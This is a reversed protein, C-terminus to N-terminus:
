KKEALAQRYKEADWDLLEAEADAGIPVPTWDKPLRLLIDSLCRLMARQSATATKRMRIGVGELLVAPPAGEHDSTPLAPGLFVVHDPYYSGAKAIANARKDRAIWSESTWEWGDLAEADPATQDPPKTPMLLRAEVEDILDATEAVTKGCVILGHNQLVFVRTGPQVCALIKRTLHLGPKAYPVFAPKLGKLKQAAAARGEPSIAHVLTAISHTHAIVPWYLAAHFTTEISPRLPNEPDLVTGNCSGDGVSGQAEALAMERDVPVFIDRREADALETGSAKIWMVHGDKISTNGGAGQVRLPDRGLRASLARFRDFELPQPLIM